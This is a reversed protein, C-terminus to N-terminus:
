FDFFGGEDPKKKRAEALEKEISKEAEIRRKLEKTFPNDTVGFFSKDEWRIALTKLESDSLDKAKTEVVEEQLQRLQEQEVRLEEFLKAERDEDIAESIQTKITDVRTRQKGLEIAKPTKVKELEKIKQEEKKKKLEQLQTKALEKGARFGRGALAGARGKLRQFKTPDEVSPDFEIEKVELDKHRKVDLPKCDKINPVGDGDSDAQYKLFVGSKQLQKFSKNKLNPNNKLMAEVRPSLKQPQKRGKASQSHVKPDGGQINKYGKGRGRGMGKRMKKVENTKKEYCGYNNLYTGLKEVQKSTIEIYSKQM